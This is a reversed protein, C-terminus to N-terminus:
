WPKTPAPTQLARAGAGQGGCTPMHVECGPTQPKQFCSNFHFTQGGLEAQQQVQMESVGAQWCCAPLLGEQPIQLWLDLSGGVGATGGRMLGQPSVQCAAIWSIRSGPPNSGAAATQQTLKSQPNPKPM